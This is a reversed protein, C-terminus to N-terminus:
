IKQYFKVKFRAGGEVKNEASIEGSHKEVITRAMSLGIGVSDKDSNKGKYFRKFIYPLDEKSFGNGNDEIKVETFVPNAELFIDIKGNAELHEASNKIINLFAEGLWYADGKISIDQGIINLGINKKEILPMIPEIALDVINKINIIEKKFEITDADLKSMTLLSNTLSELRIIQKNLRQIYEQTEKNHENSEMLQAMINISTIPTKLQHSIDAINDKLNIKDQVAQERLERLSVVTKYLEDSLITFDEDINLNLSYEGKNTRELYNKLKEINRKRNNSLIRMNIYVMSGVLISFLFSIYIVTKKDKLFIFKTSSYGYRKLVEKGIAIYQSDESKLQSMALIEMDKSSEAVVGIVTSLKEFLMHGLLNYILICFIFSLLLIFISIGAKYSLDKRSSSM